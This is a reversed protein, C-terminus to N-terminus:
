LALLPPAYPSGPRSEKWCHKIRKACRLDDRGVRIECGSLGSALAREAPPPCMRVLSLKRERIVSPSAMQNIAFDDTDALAIQNLALLQQLGALAVETGLQDPDVESTGNYRWLPWIPLLRDLGGVRTSM